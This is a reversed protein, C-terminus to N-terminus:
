LTTVQSAAEKRHCEACTRDGVFIVGEPVRTPDWKEFTPDTRSHCTFGLLQDWLGAPLALVSRLASLSDQQLLEYAESETLAIRPVM